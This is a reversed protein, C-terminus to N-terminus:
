KEQDNAERGTLRKILNDMTTFLLDVSYGALFSITLPSLNSIEFGASQGTEDGLLFGVTLGSLAGLVLRVRYGIQNEPLFTTKNISRQLERLIFLFAGMIGFLLPFIFQSLSSLIINAFHLSPREYYRGIEKVESKWTEFSMNVSDIQPRQRALTEATKAAKGYISFRTYDELNAFTLHLHGILEDLKRFNDDFLPDNDYIWRYIRDERQQDVFQEMQVDLINQQLQSILQQYVKEESGYDKVKHNIVRQLSPYIGTKTTLRKELEAIIMDRTIAKSVNAVISDNESELAQIRSPLDIKCDNYLDKVIIWYTQGAILLLLWLIAGHRYIKATRQADSISRPTRQIISLRRSWRSLWDENEIKGQKIAKLSLANVGPLLAALKSISEWFVKQEEITLKAETGEKKENVALIGNLVGEPITIGHVAAHEVLFMADELASFLREDKSFSGTSESGLHTEQHEM